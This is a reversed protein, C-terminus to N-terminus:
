KVNVDLYIIESQFELATRFPYGCRSFPSITEHRPLLYLAAMWRTFGTKQMAIRRNGTVPVAGIVTM